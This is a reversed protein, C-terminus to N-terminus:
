SSAIILRAGAANWPPCWLTELGTESSPLTSPVMPHSGSRPLWGLDTRGRCSLDRNIWVRNRESELHCPVATISSPIFNSGSLFLSEIGTFRQMRVQSVLNRRANRIQPISTSSSHLITAGSASCPCSFCIQNVQIIVPQNPLMFEAVFNQYSLEDAHRRQIGSGANSCALQLEPQESTSSHLVYQELTAISGDLFRPLWRCVYIMAPTM